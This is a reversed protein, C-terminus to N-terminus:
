AQNRNGNNNHGNQPRAGGQGGNPRQQGGNGRQGSMKSNQPNSVFIINRKKKPAAERASEEQKASEPKEVQETKEAKEPKKAFAGRVMEAESEELNSSATKAEIGKEKLFGIIDKSQKDLEKALEHVKIKAM